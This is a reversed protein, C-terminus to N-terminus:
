LGNSTINHSASRRSQEQVEAKVGAIEDLVYAEFAMEVGTDIAAQVILMGLHRGLKKSQSDGPTSLRGSAAARSALMGDALLDSTSACSSGNVMLEVADSCVKVEGRKNVTLGGETRTSAYLANSCLQSGGDPVLAQCVNHGVPRLGCYARELPQNAYEVVNELLHIGALLFGAFQRNWLQGKSPELALISLKHRRTALKTDSAMAACTAESPMALWDEIEMSAKKAAQTLYFTSLLMYKYNLSEFM